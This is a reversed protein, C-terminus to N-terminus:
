TKSLMYVGVVIVGLGLIRLVSLVENFFLWSLVSVLVYGLSLIPFAYSLEAKSLALLWFFSSTVFFVIGFFVFPNFVASVLSFFINLNLSIEGLTNLGHKLLLQGINVLIVSLLVLLIAASKRKM